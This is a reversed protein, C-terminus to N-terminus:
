NGQKSISNRSPGKGFPRKGKKSKCDRALFGSKQCNRCVVPTRNLEACVANAQQQKIRCNKARHRTGHCHYRRIRPRLHDVAMPEDGHQTSGGYSSDRFSNNGSRLDFRKRSNQGNTAATIAAQLTAPNERMVKM